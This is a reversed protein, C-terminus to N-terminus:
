KIDKNEIINYHRGQIKEKALFFSDIEGDRLVYEKDKIKILTLNSTSDFCLLLKEASNWCVIKNKYKEDTTIPLLELEIEM